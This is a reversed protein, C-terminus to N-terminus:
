SLEPMFRKNVLMIYSPLQVSLKQSKVVLPVPTDWLSIVKHSIEINLSPLITGLTSLSNTDTQGYVSHRIYIRSLMSSSPWSFLHTINNIKLLVNRIKRHIGCYKTYVNIHQSLTITHLLPHHEAWKGM